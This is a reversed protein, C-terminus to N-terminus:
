RDDIDHKATIPVGSMQSKWYPYSVVVKSIQCGAEDQPEILRGQLPAVGLVNFFEGSVEIGNVQKADNRRGVMVGTERWAFVGSFPEHNRRVELWM